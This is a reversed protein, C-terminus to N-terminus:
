TGKLVALSTKRPTRHVWERGLALAREMRTAALECRLQVDELMWPDSESADVKMFIARCTSMWSPTHWPVGRIIAASMSHVPDSKGIERILWSTDWPFLEMSESTLRWFQKMASAADGYRQALQDLAEEESIDPQKFFLGAIRLNPDATRGDLLCNPPADGINIDGVYPVGFHCISRFGFDEAL